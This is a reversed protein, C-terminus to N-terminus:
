KAAIEAFSRLIAMWGNDSDIAQRVAEVQDGFRELNRHELEVRTRAADLPVLRVEVETILEPDFQWKDNLQWALTISNPPNWAIVHGWECESGDVGREYWRGKARPEIVVETIDVKGIHHSKPWWTSVKRTFVDFAKAQAANVEINRRVPAPTITRSM